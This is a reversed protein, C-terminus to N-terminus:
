HGHVLLVVFVYHRFTRHMSNNKKKRVILAPIPFSHTHHSNSILICSESIVWSVGGGAGWLEQDM